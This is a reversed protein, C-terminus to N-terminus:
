NSQNSSVLIFIGGIIGLIGGFVIGLVAVLIKDNPGALGNNIRSIAMFSPITWLLPIIFISEFIFVILILICGARTM